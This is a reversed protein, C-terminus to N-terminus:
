SHCEKILPTVMVGEEGGGGGGGGKGNNGGVHVQRGRRKKGM